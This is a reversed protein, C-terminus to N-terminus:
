QVLFLLKRDIGEEPEEKVVEDKVFEKPVGERRIQHEKQIQETADVVVM